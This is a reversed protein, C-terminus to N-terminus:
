HTLYYITNQQLHRACVLQGSKLFALTMAKRMAQEDDSRLFPPSNTDALKSSLYDFFMRYSDLDSTGHTFIPGIFLPHRDTGEPYVALKKFVAMTMYVETLIFTKDFGLVTTQGAPASCCFQKLDLMQQETHLMVSPVAGKGYWVRQIFPHEQILTEVQQIQCGLNGKTLPQDTRGECDKTKECYKKNQIQRLNGPADEEKNNRELHQFVTHPTSDKVAAAIQDM